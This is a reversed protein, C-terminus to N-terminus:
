ELEGSGSDGDEIDAARSNAKDEELEEKGLSGALDGVKVEDNSDILYGTAGGSEARVIQALGIKKFNTDLFSSVVRLNPNSFIPIIDGVNLGQTTGADLFLFSGAYVIKNEGFQGGIVRAPQASIPGPKPVEVIPIPGPLLKHGVGPLDLAKEVQAKYISATANAKNMLRLQGYVKVYKYKGDQGFPISKVIHYIKEQPNRIKVYLIDGVGATKYGNEADVVEDKVDSLNSESYYAILDVKKDTEPRVFFDDSIKVSEEVDGQVQEANVPFKIIPFSAPLHNVLPVIKKPLKSVVTTKEKSDAPGLSPPLSASGPYFLVEQDPSIQHPNYIKDANMAWIKPWFHPDAFLTQSIDWLTDGEQVTYVNVQIRQLMSNWTEAPTPTANFRLYTQHFFKEKQANTAAHISVSHVMVVVIFGIQSILSKKM